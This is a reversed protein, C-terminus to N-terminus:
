STVVPFGSLIFCRRLGQGFNFIELAMEYRRRYPRGRPLLTTVYRGIIVPTTM